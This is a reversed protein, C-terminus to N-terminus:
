PWTIRFILEGVTQGGAAFQPANHGQTRFADLLNTTSSVRAAYLDYVDPDTCFTSLFPRGNEHAAM